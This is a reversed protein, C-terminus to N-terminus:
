ASMWVASLNIKKEYRHVGKNGLEVETKNKWTSGEKHTGKVQYKNSWNRKWKWLNVKQNDFEITNLAVTLWAIPSICSNESPESSQTSGRVNKSANCFNSAQIKELITSDTHHCTLGKKLSVDYHRWFNYRVNNGEIYKSSKSEM